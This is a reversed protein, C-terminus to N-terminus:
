ALDLLKNVRIIDHNPSMVLSEKIASQEDDATHVSFVYRDPNFNDVLLIEYIM